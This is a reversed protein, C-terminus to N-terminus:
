LKAIKKKVEAAMKMNHDLDAMFGSGDHVRHDYQMGPVVYFSNGEKLWLYNFWITDTGKMEPNHQFVRLYEKVNVFYNCTNLLCDFMRKPLHKKVSRRNFNLSVFPRYDFQPRAFSPCYIVNEDWNLAGRTKYLADIYETDLINDSDFVIAWQRTAYELSRAKNRSMGVNEEHTVVIVKPNDAFVDHLWTVTEENSCDDSIIIEAIRDDGIVREFSQLLMETRNWNTLCLSIQEM